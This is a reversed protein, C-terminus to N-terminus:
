SFPNVIELPGFAPQGPIDESYLTQVGSERCAAVIL